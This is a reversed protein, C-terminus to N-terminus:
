YKGHFWIPFFDAFLIGPLSSLCPSILLYLFLTLFSVRVRVLILDFLTNQDVKVFETDWSKLSEDKEAGGTVNKEKDSGAEVHKKCYEIVKALIKSTVNPLPIENDACDDEIMHKITQSEVAVAEDVVFTEGDSSKLTIKKSESM